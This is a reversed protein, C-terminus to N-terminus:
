RGTWNKRLRKEDLERQYVRAKKGCLGEWMAGFDIMFSEDGIQPFIDHMIIKATGGVSFSFLAPHDISLIAKKIKPIDYYAHTYHTEILSAGKFHKLVGRIKAPGVFVIPLEQEKMAMVVIHAQDNETARRWLRGDHWPIGGLGNEGLWTKVNTLNGSKALWRQHWIAPWYRPHAHYSQLTNRLRDQAQREQWESYIHHGKVGMNPCITRWEGEGYRVFTFPRGARIERAYFKIGLSRVPIWKRYKISDELKGIWQDDLYGKWNKM